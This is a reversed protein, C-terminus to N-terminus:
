KYESPTRGTIKKFVRNFTVINEFGVSFAIDIVRSKGAELQGIADEIRLSNIYENITKGSYTKFISGMYNPNMGIAAALGERSIDSKYNETIFDIIKKLKEESTDTISVEKDGGSIVKLRKYLFELEIQRRLIERHFLIAFLVLFAIPSTKAVLDSYYSGTYRSYFEFVIIFVVMLSMLFMTNRYFKDPNISNLRFILFFLYPVCFFLTINTLTFGILYNYESEICLIMIAVFLLLVPIIIRNHNNIYIRYISQLFLILSISFLPIISMLVALYVEYSVFRNWPILTFLYFIYIVIGTLTYLPLKEKMNLVYVILLAVFFGSFFVLLLFPLYKNILDNFFLSREFADEQQVLVDNLIGGSYKGYIGLQIHVRNKGNKLLGPYINYNRPGPSWNVNTSNTSGILKENIYIKDSLIIRGTSLGKYKAANKVVEFEGRLWVFSFKKKAAYPLKFQSPMEVPKWAKEKLVSKFSGNQIYLIEWNKVQISVPEHSCSLTIAIICLFFPLYKIKNFRM